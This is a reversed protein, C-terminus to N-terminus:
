TTPAGPSNSPRPPDTPPGAFLQAMELWERASDGVVVLHTDSLSRRQSTVLCFDLASGTVTDAADDPGWLWTDGSPSTLELRVEQEPVPLKRNIYTWGRTIFGLQAIHRLRETAVLQGGVTDVIDYGHAWAEMLRATLFSKSSMSPGYWVVRTDDSLTAAAVALERRCTRWHALLEAPSMAQAAGLTIRDSADADGFAEAVFQDRHNAFAAPDTIAVAASHDFFSLHAIQEIVRWRPSPTSMQWQADSLPAVILDLSEQEAILEATISAATVSAGM